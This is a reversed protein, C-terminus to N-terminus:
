VEKGKVNFKNMTANLGSEIFSEAAHCAHEIVRDVIVREEKSFNSLVHRAPDKGRGIGLKARAINVTGLKNLIDKLGNQGGASGTTKITFQGVEHDMDDYFVFIDELSIKFFKVAAQVADGSLNMFTQPKMIVVDKVINYLANFKNKTLEVGLKSALLDVVDFGINHRTNAYEKGPNGLGIILKM